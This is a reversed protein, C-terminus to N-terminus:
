GRRRYLMYTALFLFLLNLTFFYVLDSSRIVGRLMNDFHPVVAAREIWAQMWLPFMMELRSLVFLVFIISFAAIFAIVQNATLTSAFIGISIYSAGLLLLALYSATIMGTDPSGLLYLLMPYFLSFALTVAYLVLSAAYKSLTIQWERVPMTLVLQITDVKKEEAISRMTIAPMFFMLLLPMVDLMGRLEAEKRLFLSNSFFWGTIVLFICIVVYAMPSYFYHKLEKRILSLTTM